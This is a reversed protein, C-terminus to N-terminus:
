LDHKHTPRSPTLRSHPMVRSAGMRMPLVAAEMTAPCSGFDLPMAWNGEAAAAVQQLDVSVLSGVGKCSLRGPWSAMTILLVM